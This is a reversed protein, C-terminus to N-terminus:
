TFHGNVLYLGGVVQCEDMWVKGGWLHLIIITFIVMSLTPRRWWMVNMWGDKIWVKGGWLHLNIITFIFMSLTPRWWM